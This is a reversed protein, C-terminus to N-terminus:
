LKQWQLAQARRLVDHATAKDKAAITVLFGDSVSVVRASVGSVALPDNAVATESYFPAGIERNLRLQLWEATLGPRAEVRVTAGRLENWSTKIPTKQEYYPTVSVVHYDSLVGASTAPQMMTAGECDGQSGAFAFGPVSLAAAALAALAIRSQFM